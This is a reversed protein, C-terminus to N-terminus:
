DIDRLMNLYEQPLNFSIKCVSVNVPSSGNKIDSYQDKSITYGIIYRYLVTEEYSSELMDLFSPLLIIESNGFKIVFYKDSFDIKRFSNFRFEIRYYSYTQSVFAIFMNCSYLGIPFNMNLNEFIVNHYDFAIDTSYYEHYCPLETHTNKVYNIYDDEVRLNDESGLKNFQSCTPVLIICCIIYFLNYNLKKMFSGIESIIQIFM